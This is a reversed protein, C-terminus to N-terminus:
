GEAAYAEALLEVVYRVQPARQGQGKGAGKAQMRLHNEMQLACGPNGTAVVDAGTAAVNAAKRRGLRQSMERETISYTGASGCCVAPEPMPVLEVGPIARLLARPPQTIRQANALHCADQYTVRLPDAESAGPQRLSAFQARARPPDLPLGALFEHIDKSLASVEAAKAAYGPDERLIHGYEKMTSGCGASAVIVADPKAALFSDINRRAMELASEREGAHLNLAGCCGQDSTLVTEVGNRSLVRTAAELAPAHMLTMVCGALMAVRARKAGQAPITRGDALFFSGSIRPMTSDLYDAGGPLLKLLGSGRAITRMPSRQYFRAARGAARLRGPSGLLWKYGISRGAREMVPRKVHENLAARTDEMLRGYPVGSPCAVECARCQLCLDWHATVAPTVDLRGENVAKMLAIRGRPSEAELGTELYTPCANLCFGCHVCKYLDAETPAHVSRFNSSPLRPAADSSM